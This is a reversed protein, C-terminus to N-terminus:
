QQHHVRALRLNQIYPECQVLSKNVATLAEGRSGSRVYSQLDLVFSHGQDLGVFKHNHDVCRFFILPYNFGNELENLVEEYAEKIFTDDSDLFLVWDTKAAKFGLNKAGSVGLNVPSYLVLLSGCAIEKPFMHLIHTQTGDDSADDVVIVQSGNFSELASRISNTVINKRNYTTIVISVFAM